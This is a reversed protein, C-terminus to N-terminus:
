IDEVGSQSSLKISLLLKKFKTYCYKRVFPVLDFKSDEKKEEANRYRYKNQWLYFYM